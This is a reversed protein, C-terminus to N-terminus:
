EADVRCILDYFYKIREDPTNLDMDILGIDCTGFVRKIRRVDAEIEEDPKKVSFSVNESGLAVTMFLDQDEEHEATEDKVTIKSSPYFAKVLTYIDYEFERNNLSVEINLM